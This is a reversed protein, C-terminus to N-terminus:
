YTEIDTPDFTSDKLRLFFSPEGGRQRPGKSWHQLSSDENFDFAYETFPYSDINWGGLEVRNAILNANRVTDYSDGLKNVGGDFFASDTWLGNSVSSDIDRLMKSSVFAGSNFASAVTKVADLLDSDASLPGQFESDRNAWDTIANKIDSDIKFASDASNHQFMFLNFSSPKWMDAIGTETSASDLRCVFVTVTDDDVQNYSDYAISPNSNNIRNVWFYKSSIIANSDGMNSDIVWSGDVYTQHPREWVDRRWIRSKMFGNSDAPMPSALVVQQTSDSDHILYGAFSLNPEFGVYNYLKM